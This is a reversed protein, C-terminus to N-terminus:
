AALKDRPAEAGGSQQVLGVQVHGLPGVVRKRVAGAEHGISRAHHSPDDDIVRARAVARFLAAAIVDSRDREIVQFIRDVGPLESQDVVCQLFQGQNLWLESCQDVTCRFHSFARM